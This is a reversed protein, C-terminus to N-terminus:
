NLGKSLIQSALDAAAKTTIAANADKAAKKGKSLTRGSVKTSLEAETLATELTVVEYQSMELSFFLGGGKKHGRENSAREIRMNKYFKLTTYVSLLAANEIYEEITSWADVAPEQGALQVSGLFVLPKDSIIGQINLGDPEKHTHDSASRLGKDSEVPHKTITNTKKHTENVTADVILLPTTINGDEDQPGIVVNRVGFFVESFAM